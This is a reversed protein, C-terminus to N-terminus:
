ALVAVVSSRATASSTSAALRAPPVSLMVADEIRQSALLARRRQGRLRAVLSPLIVALVTVAQAALGEVTPYLGLSPLGAFPVPTVGVFAGEQLARVGRGVLAIALLALVMSSGLMVPRPNLRRGLRRIVLVVVAIAAVGALAGLAVVGPHGDADLLLARFFVVTEVAERYAAFFALGFLAWTGDGTAATTM